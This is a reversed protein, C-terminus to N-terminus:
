DATVVEIMWDGAFKTETAPTGPLGVRSHEGKTSTDYSVYVGKRQNARFDVAVWFEAPLGVPEAFSIAVWKEDGREFLAYPAMETALVRDRNPNLFYIMFKEDPAEPAGYRSGHIRLGAVKSKGEPLAFQILEGSGGLSQKGDAAGDGYKLTHETDDGLLSPSNSLGVVVPLAALLGVVIALRGSTPKGTKGARIAKPMQM